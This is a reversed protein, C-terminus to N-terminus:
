VRRRIRRYLGLGLSLVILTGIEVSAAVTFWFLLDIIM